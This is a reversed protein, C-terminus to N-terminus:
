SSNVGKSIYFGTRKKNATLKHVLRHATIQLTSVPKPHSFYLAKSKVVNKINGCICAIQINGLSKESHALTLIM